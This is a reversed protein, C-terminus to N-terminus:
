WFSSLWNQLKSLYRNPNKTTAVVLRGNDPDIGSYEDVVAAWCVDRTKMYTTSSPSWDGSEGGYFGSYYLYDVVPTDGSLQWGINQRNLVLEGDIWGRVTGDSVQPSSNATVEMVVTFWEGIPVNVDGYRIDEGYEDSRDAAYSYIVIRGTGDGNGRWM